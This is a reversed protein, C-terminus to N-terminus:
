IQRALRRGSQLPVLLVFLTFLSHVDAYCEVYYVITRLGERDQVLNLVRLAMERTVDRGVLFV